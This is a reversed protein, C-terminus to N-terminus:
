FLAATHLLEAGNHLSRDFFCRRYNHNLYHVVGAKDAAEYMELAEDSTLSIPKECFIHKGAKAAVLAIPYHLNPPTSIDIIDIDDREIVKKWDTEVEEWGWNDAFEQAAEKNRGCAVKLVPKIPVDFFNTVNKWANSHAKGMFKYGIIAVNIEKM